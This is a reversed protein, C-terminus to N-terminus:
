ERTASRLLIEAEAQEREALEWCIAAYKAEAEDVKRRFLTSFSTMAMALEEALPKMEQLTETRFERYGFRHSAEEGRCM